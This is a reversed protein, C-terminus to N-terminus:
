VGRIYFYAFLIIQMSKNINEDKISNDNLKNDM